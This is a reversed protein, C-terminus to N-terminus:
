TQRQLTAIFAAHPHRCFSRSQGVTYCIRPRSVHSIHDRGLSGHWAMQQRCDRSASLLPRGVLFLYCCSISCFLCLAHMFYMVSIHVVADPPTVVQRAKASGGPFVLLPHLQLARHNPGAQSFPILVSAVVLFVSRRFAGDKRRRATRIRFDTTSRGKRLKFGKARKYDARGSAKPGHTSIKKQQTETGDEQMGDEGNQGASAGEEQADNDAEGMTADEGLEAARQETVTPRSSGEQLKDSLRQTRADTRQKFVSKPDNTKIARHHRKTKSRLSKATTRRALYILKQQFTKISLRM